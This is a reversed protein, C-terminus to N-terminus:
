RGDNRELPLSSSAQFPLIATPDPPTVRRRQIMGM